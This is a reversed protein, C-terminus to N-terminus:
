GNDGSRIAVGSWWIVNIRGRRVGSIGNKIHTQTTSKQLNSSDRLWRTTSKKGAEINGVGHSGGGGCSSWHSSQDSTTGGRDHTHQAVVIRTDRNSGRGHHLAGWCGRSGGSRNIFRCSSMDGGDVCPQHHAHHTHHSGDQKSHLYCDIPPQLEVPRCTHMCHHMNHDM